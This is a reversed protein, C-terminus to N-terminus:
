KLAYRSATTAEESVIDAKIGANKKDWAVFVHRSIIELAQTWDPDKADESKAKVKAMTSREANACPWTDRRTKGHADDRETIAFLVPLAVRKRHPLSNSRRPPFLTEGDKM